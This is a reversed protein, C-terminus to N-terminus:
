AQSRCWRSVRGGCVCRDGFTRRLVHLGSEVSASPYPDRQGRGGVVGATTPGLWPDRLPLPKLAAVRTPDRAVRPPKRSARAAPNRNESGGEKTSSKWVRTGKPPLTTTQQSMISGENGELLVPVARPPLQRAAVQVQGGEKVTVSDFCHQSRSSRSEADRKPIV